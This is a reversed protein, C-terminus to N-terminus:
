GPVEIRLTTGRGPTADIVLTGGLRSARERLGLLGFGSVDPGVVGTGDDRVELAVTVGLAVTSDAGYDLVLLAHTAMAHKRVNNLGEQATRYLSEATEAPLARFSGAVDVTTPVGAAATEGALAELAEPLPPSTRPERLSGVSRRVEALAESSQRQAKALVEDARQPDSALVARAAQVQMQVVTLHHGLGDHIDRALRNREQITALQEAQAAYGRLAVNAEALEARARQERLHLATVVAAFVVAALTGLGARVGAGWDMGVHVLPVVATVMAAAPLTLLRVAQSVLVVLLLTAGVSAHAMSFLLFGLPLQVGIYVLAPARGRRGPSSVWEYGAVALFSFVAGVVVAGVPQDTESAEFVLTLFAALTLVALARNVPGSDQTRLDGTLPCPLLVADVIRVPQIAATSRM